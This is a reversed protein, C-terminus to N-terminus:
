SRTRRRPAPDPLDSAGSAEELKRQVAVAPKYFMHSFKSWPVSLFLLATFFLYIGFLTLNLGASASLAQVGHWLLGLLASGMLLLVFLDARGVHFRSDGDYVVNVRLFFFFWAGGALIMLAGVDWLAVWAGPAAAEPLAFVLVVTAIVYLIFGYMMLLHSLRRNWKCFEGSVSAEAVGKVVAAAQRMANMPRRAAAKARARRQAFFRGSGKHYVDLVTGIAVAFAMLVVFSQVLGAPVVDIVAAFPNTSFMMVGM